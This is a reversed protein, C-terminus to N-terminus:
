YKEKLIYLPGCRNDKCAFNSVSSITTCQQPNDSKQWLRKDKHWGQSCYSKLPVQCKFVLMLYQM